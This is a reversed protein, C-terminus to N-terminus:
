PAPTPRTSAILWHGGIDTVTVRIPGADTPVDAVLVATTSSVLRPLGTVTHAPVNGPDTDALLRRYQPTAWPRIDAYWTSRNLGPRAWLRIYTGAALLAANAPRASAATGVGDEGANERDPEPEVSAAASTLPARAADNTPEAQAGSRPACGALAALSAIALIATTKM